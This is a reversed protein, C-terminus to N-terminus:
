PERDDLDADVLYTGVAPTVGGQSPRDSRGLLDAPTVAAIEAAIRASAERAHRMNLAGRKLSTQAELDRGGRDALLADLGHEVLSAARVARDLEVVFAETQRVLGAPAKLTRGEAAIARLADQLTPLSEALARPDGSRRRIEDLHGVFPQAMSGLRADLGTVTAQFRELTRTRAALASMRRLTQVAVIALAGLVVIWLIAGGALDDM